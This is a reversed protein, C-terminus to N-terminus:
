IREGMFVLPSSSSVHFFNDSTYRYNTKLHVTEGLKLKVVLLRTATRQRDSSSRDYTTFTQSETVLHIYCTSDYAIGSITFLYSGPAPATFTGNLNMGNGINTVVESFSIPDEKRLINGSTRYTFLLNNTHQPLLRSLAM